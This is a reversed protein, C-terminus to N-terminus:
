EWTYEPQQIKSILRENKHHIRKLFLKKWKGRAMGQEGRANQGSQKHLESKM